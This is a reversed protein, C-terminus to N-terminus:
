SARKLTSAGKSPLPPAKPPLSFGVRAATKEILGTRRDEDDMGIQYLEVLDQVCSVYRLM